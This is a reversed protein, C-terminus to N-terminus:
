GIDVQTIWDGNIMLNLRTNNYLLIRTTQPVGNRMVIRYPIERGRLYETGALETDGVLAIRLADIFPELNRMSLKIM